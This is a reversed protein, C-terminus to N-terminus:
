PKQNADSLAMIEALAETSLKSTDIGKSPSMSQDSSTHDIAQKDFWAFRNRMNLSWVTANGPSGTVMFRGQREWWVECMDQASSVTIRFEESNEILTSWATQAVGLMCRMEVASGGEQGCDMIIQKWDKPLDEVTTRPRGVPRTMKDM